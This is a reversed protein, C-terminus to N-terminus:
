NSTRPIDKEKETARVDEVVEPICNAKSIYSFLPEGEESFVFFYHSM